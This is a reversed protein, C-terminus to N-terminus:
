EYRRFKGLYLDDAIILLKFGGSETVTWFCSKAANKWDDPQTACPQVVRDCIKFVQQSELAQCRGPEIKM